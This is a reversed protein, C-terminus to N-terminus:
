YVPARIAGFVLPGENGSIVPLFEVPRIPDIRARSWPGALDVDQRGALIRVGRVDVREIDRGLGEHIENCLRGSVVHRAGHCDTTRIHTGAVDLVCQLVDHCLFGQLLVEVAHIGVELILRVDAENSQIASHGAHQDVNLPWAIGAIVVEIVNSLHLEIEQHRAAFPQLRRPQRADIQASDARTVARQDRSIECARGAEGSGQRHDYHRVAARLLPVLQVEIRDCM